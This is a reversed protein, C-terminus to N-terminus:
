KGKLLKSWINETTSIKTGNGELSPMTNRQLVELNAMIKLVLEQPLSAIIAAFCLEVPAKVKIGNSLSIDVDHSHPPLKFM